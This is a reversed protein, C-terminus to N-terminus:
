PIQPGVKDLILDIRLLLVWSTAMSPPIDSDAGTVEPFQALDM